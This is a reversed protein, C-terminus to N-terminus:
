SGWVLKFMVADTYGEFLVAVTYACGSHWGVHKYPEQCSDLCWQKMDALTGSSYNVVKVLMWGPNEALIREAAKVDEWEDDNIFDDYDDDEVDDDDLEPSSVVVLEEEILNKEDASM